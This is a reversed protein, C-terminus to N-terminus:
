YFKEIIREAWRIIPQESMHKAADFVYNSENRFFERGWHGNNSVLDRLLRQTFSEFVLLDASESKVPKTVLTSISWDDARGVEVIYCPIHGQREIRVIACTRISGDDYWSFSKFQPLPIIILSM